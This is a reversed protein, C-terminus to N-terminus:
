ETRRKRLTQYVAKSIEATSDKKINKTVDKLKFIIFCSVLNDIIFIILLIISLFSIINSPVQNLPKLLFPNLYKIILSGFLSFPIMTELCVRGNINFKMNSYDWWRLKFTKELIYSTIYELSTCIVFTAIFIIWFNDMYKQLLLWLLFCGYGYIPCYPGILFGRNMMKKETALTFFIEMVWGCFSYILFILFYTYFM